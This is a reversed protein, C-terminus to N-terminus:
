LQLYTRMILQNPYQVPIYQVLICDHCQIPAKKSELGLMGVDWSLTTHKCNTNYIALGRFMWDLSANRLWVYLHPAYWLYEQTIARTNHLEGALSEM